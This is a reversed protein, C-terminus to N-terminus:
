TPGSTLLSALIYLINSVNPYRGELPHPSPAPTDYYEYQTTRMFYQETKSDPESMKYMIDFTEMEVELFESYQLTRCVIYVTHVSVQKSTQVLQAVSM